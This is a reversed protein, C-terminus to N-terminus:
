REHQREPDLADAIRHLHREISEFVELLAAFEQSSVARQARYQLPKPEGDVTAVYPLRGHQIIVLEARELVEYAKRAVVRSTKYIRALDSTSPLPEGAELGNSLIGVRIQAAIQQYKPMGDYRLQPDSGLLTEWKSM